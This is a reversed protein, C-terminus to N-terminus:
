RRSLFGVLLGLGAAIALAQVPRTRVYDATGSELRDLQRAAEDLSQRGREGLAEAEGRARDGLEGAKAAALDSLTTGIAAVDARLQEIQKNLDETTPTDSRAAM